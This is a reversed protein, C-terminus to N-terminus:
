AKDGRLVLRRQITVLIAVFFFLVVGMASALGFNQFKFAVDVTKTVFTESAGIPGGKTLIFPLDFAEMSGSLSLFLLLEVVTRINPLTIHRFSQWANAGDITAAEYLESPISQLAGLYLVMNLGTYKWLAIGALSINVLSPNGLWSIPQGILGLFSLILNLAGRDTDLVFSFIYAVAVGNVIYPLFLTMRFLNRGRLGRNLIVAFYLALVAQILGAVFYYLNHTLVQFLEANTFLERYNALGVWEKVPDMGNWSTFSQYVLMGAPYYSFLLLLVLPLSLFSVLLVTKQSKYRLPQM